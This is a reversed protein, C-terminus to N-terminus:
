CIFMLCTITISINSVIHSIKNYKDNMSISSIHRLEAKHLLQENSMDTDLVLISHFAFADNEHYVHYFCM